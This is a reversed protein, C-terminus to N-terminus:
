IEFRIVVKDLSHCEALTTRVLSLIDNKKPTMDTRNEASMNPMAGWHTVVAQRDSKNVNGVSPHMNCIGHLTEIEQREAGVCVLFARPVVEHEVHAVKRCEEIEEEDPKERRAGGEEDGAVAERHSGEGASYDCPPVAQDEVILVLNRGQKHM